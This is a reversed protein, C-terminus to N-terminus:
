ELKGFTVPWKQDVKQLMACFLSITSQSITNKLGIVSSGHIHNIENFLWTFRQALFLFQREM